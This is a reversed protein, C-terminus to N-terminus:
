FDGQLEGMDLNEFLDKPWESSSGIMSALHRTAAVDVPSETPGWSPACRRQAQAIRRADPSQELATRIASRLIQRFYLAKDPQLIYQNLADLILGARMANTM